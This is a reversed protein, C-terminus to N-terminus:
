FRFTQAMANRWVKECSKRNTPVVNFELPWNKM